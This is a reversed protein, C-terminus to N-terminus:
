AERKWALWLQITDTDEINGTDVMAYVTLGGETNFHSIPDTPLPLSQDIAGGGSDLNDAFYNDDEAVSRSATPGPKTYARYGIHLDANAAMQTTKLRSLASNVAIKGPPLKVLNIEGTGAGQTATHLWYGYAYLWEADQAPATTKGTYEASAVPTGTFAAM